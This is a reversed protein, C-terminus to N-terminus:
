PAIRELVVMMRFAIQRRVTEPIKEELALM